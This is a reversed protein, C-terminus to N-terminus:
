LKVTSNTDLRLVVDIFSKVAVAYGVMDLETFAVVLVAAIAQVVALWFTRSQWLTKM